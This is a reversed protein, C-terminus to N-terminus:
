SDRQPPTYKKLIEWGTIQKLPISVLSQSAINKLRRALDQDEIEEGISVERLNKYLVPDELVSKDKGTYLQLQSMGVNFVIAQTTKEDTTISVKDGVYVNAVFDAVTKNSKEM